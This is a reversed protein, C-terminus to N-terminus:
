WFCKNEIASLEAIIYPKQGEGIERDNVKFMFVEKKYSTHSQQRYPNYGLKILM